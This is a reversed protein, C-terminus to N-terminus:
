KDSKKLIRKVEIDFDDDIKKAEIKKYEAFNREAIEIALDHSIKSADIKRMKGDEALMKLAHCKTVTENGGEKLLREKLKRWYAGPNVSQTLIAIIDVVAFYWQENEWVRRM